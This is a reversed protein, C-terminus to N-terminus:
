KASGHGKSSCKLFVKKKCSLNLVGCSAWNITACWLELCETVCIDEEVVKVNNDLKWPLIASTVAMILIVSLM